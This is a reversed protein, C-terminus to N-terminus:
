IEDPTVEGQDEEENTDYAPQYVGFGQTDEDQDSLRLGSMADDLDLDRSEARQHSPRRRHHQKSKSKSSNGHDLSRQRSLKDHFRDEASPKSPPRWNKLPKPTRRSIKGGWRLYEACLDRKRLASKPTKRGNIAFSKPMIELYIRTKRIDKIDMHSACLTVEDDTPELAVQPRKHANIGDFRDRSRSRSASNRRKKFSM